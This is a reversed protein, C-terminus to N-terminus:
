PKHDKEKTLRYRQLVRLWRHAEVLKNLVHLAARGAPLNVRHSNVIVHKHNVSLGDAVPLAVDWDKPGFAPDLGAAGALSDGHRVVERALDIAAVRAPDALNVRARADEIRADADDALGHLWWAELMDALLRHLPRVSEGVLDFERLAIPRDTKVAVRAFDGLGPPIEYAVAAPTLVARRQPHWHPDGVDHQGQMVPDVGRRRLETALAAALDTWLLRSTRGRREAVALRREVEKRAQRDRRLARASLGRDQRRRRTSLVRRLGDPLRAQALEKAAQSLCVGRSRSNRWHHLFAACGGPEISGLVILNLERYLERPDPHNYFQLRGDALGVTHREGGCVVVTTVADPRTM